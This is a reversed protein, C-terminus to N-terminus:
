LHLQQTVSSNWARPSTSRSAPIGTDGTRPRASRVRGGGAIQSIPQDRARERLKAVAVAVGVECLALLAEEVEDTLWEVLCDAVRQGAGVRGRRALAEVGIERSPSGERRPRRRALGSHTRTTEARM